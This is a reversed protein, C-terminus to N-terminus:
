MFYTDKAMFMYLNLEIRFINVPNASRATDHRAPTHVRGAPGMPHAEPAAQRVAGAERPQRQLPPSLRVTGQCV